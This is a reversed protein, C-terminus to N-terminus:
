WRREKFRELREEKLEAPTKDGLIPELPELLLHNQPSQEGWWLDIMVEALLSDLQDPDFSGEKLDKISDWVMNIEEIRRDYSELQDEIDRPPRGPVKLKKLNEMSKIFFDMERKIRELQKKM